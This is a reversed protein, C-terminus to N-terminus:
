GRLVGPAIDHQRALDSLEDLQYQVEQVKAQLIAVGAAPTVGADDKDLAVGPQTVRDVALAIATLQQNLAAQRREMEAQLEISREAYWEPDDLRSAYVRFASAAPAAPAAAPQAAPEAAEQGPISILGRARLQDMDDNTWVKKAQNQNSQAPRPKEAAQSSCALLLVLAAASPFYDYRM